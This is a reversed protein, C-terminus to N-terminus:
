PAGARANLYAQCIHALVTSRRNPNSADQPADSAAAIARHVQALQASTLHFNLHHLRAPQGRQWAGLQSALSTEGLTALSALSAASEPLLALVEEAPLEELVDKLSRVKLYPDDDGSIRNLAQALLISETDGASVVVCPASVSGMEKLVALRQAGNVAQYTGPGASRVVLPVVVGYREISRRLRTHMAPDMRNPNWAPATISTLPLEVVNM